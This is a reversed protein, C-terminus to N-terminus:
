GVKQRLVVRPEAYTTPMPSADPTSLILVFDAGKFEQDLGRWNRLLYEVAIWTGDARQGVCHFITRGQEDHGREILAPLTGDPVSHNQVGVSDIVVSHAVDFDVEDGSWEWDMAALISHTKVMARRTVNRTTGGVVILCACDHSPAGTGVQVRVQTADRLWLADVLGRVMESLRLPARQFLQAVSAAAWSEHVSLTQRIRGDKTPPTNLSTNSLHVEVVRSRGLGFFRQLRRDTLRTLGWFTAGLGLWFLLTALLSAAVSAIFSM